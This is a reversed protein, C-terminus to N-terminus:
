IISTSLDAIFKIGPVHLKTLAKDGTIFLDINGGAACALHIADAVPVKQVARLRGFSEVANGDFALFRFGIEELTQRIVLEKSGNPHHLNGALVEGLALYSTFLLDGRERSRRLLEFVRFTWSPNDELLYLLLMADWFIRSM